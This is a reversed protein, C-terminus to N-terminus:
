RISSPFVGSESGQSVIPPDRWYCTMALHKMWYGLLFDIVLTFPKARELIVKAAKHSILYSDACRSRPPEMRYLHRTAVRHPVRLGCCSGLFLFDWGAPLATLDDALFAAFGPAIVADDELVLAAEFGGEVIAEYALLHSITCAIEPLTLARFALFPPTIALDVDEGWSRKDPRVQANEILIDRLEAMMAAWRAPSPRYYDAITSGSLSDRDISDVFTARLGEAELQAEIHRRRATLRRYHIVFAPVDKMDANVIRDDHRARRRAGAQTDENGRCQRQRLDATM